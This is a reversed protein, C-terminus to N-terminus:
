AWRSRGAIFGVALAGGQGACQESCLFPGSGPAALAAHRWL